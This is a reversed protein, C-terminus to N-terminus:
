KLGTWKVDWLEELFCFLVGGLVFTVTSLSNCFVFLHFYTFAFLCSPGKGVAAQSLWALIHMHGNKQQTIKSTYANQQACERELFM